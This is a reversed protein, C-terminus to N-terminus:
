NDDVTRDLHFPKFAGQKPLVKAAKDAFAVFYYEQIDGIDFASRLEWHDLDQENMIERVKFPAGIESRYFIKIRNAGKIEAELVLEESEQFTKVSNIEPPLINVMPHEALYDKRGSMLQVVGPVVISQDNYEEVFFKKYNLPDYLGNDDSIIYQHAHQVISDMVKRYQEESIWDEYITRVHDLYILRTDKDILLEKILPREKNNVHLFVSLSKMEDIDLPKLHDSFRFGGFAMNMDWILPQFVGFSDRFLYYNHCFRGTYSDLNVFVTNFAHMWLCADINILANIKDLASDDLAKTLEILSSWEDGSKSKAEYYPKYCTPDQGLFELSANQGRKCDRPHPEHWEPDCKIFAGKSYGFKRKLFHKDISQTCTYLGIEEEGIKLHAFNAKPAIMYDNAIRYALIERVYSPDSFINSLKLKEIGGIFHQGDIFKDSDINFPLKKEEKKLTSYFSSNGKYRVGVSDYSIGNITIKAPIRKKSYKKKYHTLKNNWYEHYFDLRIENVQDYNYFGDVQAWSLIPFFILVFRLGYSLIRLLLQNQDKIM